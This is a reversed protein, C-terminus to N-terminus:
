GHTHATREASSASTSTATSNGLVQDRYRWGNRMVGIAFAATALNIALETAGVQGKTYIGHELDYLVDLACLYVSIGGVVLLWLLATPRRRWLQIAALLAAALLWGDALPFSQEFAIYQATHDSAVIGRDAVWAIWYGTILVSALILVAIARLRTVEFDSNATADPVKM